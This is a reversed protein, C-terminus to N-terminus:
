PKDRVILVSGKSELLSKKNEHALISFNDFFPLSNCQLLHDCVASNNSPKVMKGMFSPIDIDEGSMRELHRISESYYSESCLGNYAFM